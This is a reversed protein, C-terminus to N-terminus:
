DQYYSSNQWEEESDYWIVVWCHTWGKRQIAEYRHNGDRISYLGAQYQIILPPLDAIDVVSDKIRNVREEWSEVPVQYPMHDEPGCCRVLENLLMHVPATWWRQQLKLGNSLGMNKWYGTGLYAHIWDELKHQEAYGQATALNFEM